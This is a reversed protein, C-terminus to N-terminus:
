CKQGTKGGESCGFQNCNWFYCSGDSCIAGASCRKQLVPAAEPAADPAPAAMVAVSLIAVIITSVFKM